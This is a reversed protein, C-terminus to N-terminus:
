VKPPASAIRPLGVVEGALRNQPFQAISGPHFAPVRHDKDIGTSLIDPHAVTVPEVLDPRFNCM